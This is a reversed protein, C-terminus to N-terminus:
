GGHRLAGVVILWRALTAEDFPLPEGEEFRRAVEARSLGTKKELEAEAQQYVKVLEIDSPHVAFPEDGVTILEALALLAPAASAVEPMRRRTVVLVLCDRHEGHGLRRLIDDRGSDWGSWREALAAESGETADRCVFVQRSPDATGDLKDIDSTSIVEVRVPGMSPAASGLWEVLASVDAMEACVAVIIPSGGAAAARAVDDAWGTPIPESM